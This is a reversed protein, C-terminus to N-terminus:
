PVRGQVRVLDDREDPFLEARVPVTKEGHGISEIPAGPQWRVIVLSDRRRVRDIARARDSLQMRLVKGRAQVVSRARGSCHFCPRMEAPKCRGVSGAGDGM